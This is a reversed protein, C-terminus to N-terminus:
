VSRSLGRGSEYIGDGPSQLTYQVGRFHQREEWLLADLPCLSSFTVADEGLKAPRREDTQGDKVKGMGGIGEDRWSM